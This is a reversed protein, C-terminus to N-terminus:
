KRLEILSFVTAIYRVLADRPCLNEAFLPSRGIARQTVFSAIRDLPVLRSDDIAPRRTTEVGATLPQRAHIRHATYDRMDISHHESCDPGGLQEADQEAMGTPLLQLKVGLVTANEL